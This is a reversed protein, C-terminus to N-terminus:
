TMRVVSKHPHAHNHGSSYDSNEFSKCALLHSGGCGKKLNDNEVNFSKSDSCCKETVSLQKAEAGKTV